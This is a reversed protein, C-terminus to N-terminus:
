DHHFHDWLAQGGYYGALEGAAGGVTAGIAGGVPGGVVLGYGGGAEMGAVMGAAAGTGAAIPKSMGGSTQAIEIISLDRMIEGTQRIDITSFCSWSENKRLDTTRLKSPM